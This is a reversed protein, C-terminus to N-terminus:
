KQEKVKTLTEAAISWMGIDSDAECIKELAALLEDRQQKLADRQVILDGIGHAGHDRCLRQFHDWKSQLEQHRNQLARVQDVIDMTMVDGEDERLSDGAEVAQADPRVHIEEARCSGSRM